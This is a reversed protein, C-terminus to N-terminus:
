ARRLVERAFLRAAASMDGRDARDRPGDWLNELVVRLTEEYLDHGRVEGDGRRWGLATLWTAVTDLTPSPEGEAHEGQPAADLVRTTFRGGAVVMLLLGVAAAQSYEANMSGSRGGVAHTGDVVGRWHAILDDWIRAPDDRGARGARTLLLRGKYKRLFGHHILAERFHLLPGSQVERNRAGIWPGMSPVIASAEVVDAPTLYGASTLPIGEEGARELFWTWARLAADREATDLAPPEDLLARAAAEVHESGPLYRLRDILSIVFAPVGAERLGFRLDSLQENVEDPDFRAPDGQVEFLAAGELGRSDEPPAARRGDVCVALPVHRDGTRVEEVRLIIQWDDGYDYLYHLTDGAGAVVEDLRVEGEPVGDDEGEDVDYPCLFLQAEHDWGDGGVSFRHLHSDTWGFAAQLVDHLADLTMSSRLDLRRWVPPKEGVVDARVRFVVTDSRPPHRLEPRPHDLYEAMRARAIQEMAGQLDAFSMGEAIEAFRRQVEQDDM